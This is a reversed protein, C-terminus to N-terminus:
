PEPRWLHRGDEAVLRGFPEALHSSAVLRGERDIREVLGRRTRAALEPDHDTDGNVGPQLLMVPHNAFDAALVARRDGGDIWVVQHGPTHGPAHEVLIGDGLEVPEDVLDVLGTRELPALVADFITRSEDDEDDRLWEWDARHILYQANPFWPDDTGEAVNWGIHDDHVHTIVVTEVDAPEIGAARLERDLAGRAGTWAFAPATEPGVGTDVLITRGDTRLAFAHVHLRWRPGDFAEPYRERAEAWTEASAGPFSEEVSDTFTVIDCLATIEVAGIARSGHPM